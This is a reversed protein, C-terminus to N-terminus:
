MRGAALREMDRLIKATHATDSMEGSSAPDPDSKSGPNPGPDPAAEGAPPQSAAAADTGADAAEAPPPVLLREDKIAAVTAKAIEEVTLAPAPPPLVLHDKLAQAVAAGIEGATPGAAAPPTPTDNMIEGKANITQTDIGAGKMVPSVEYVLMKKIFYTERNEHKGWAGELVRFGFSWEGDAGLFQVSQYEEQASAMELNYQGDVLAQNGKEYVKGKGVPPRTWSHGFGAVKVVQEGFAGPEIIDGDLDRVGITAIRATFAGTPSGDDNKRFDVVAGFIKRLDSGKKDEPM